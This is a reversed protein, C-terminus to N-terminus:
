MESWEKAYKEGKWGEKTADIWVKLWRELERASAAM